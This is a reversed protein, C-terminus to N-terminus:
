FDGLDVEISEIITAEFTKGGNLQKPPSPLAAVPADKKPLAVPNPTSPRSTPTATEFLRPVTRLRASPDFVKPTSTGSGGGNQQARRERRKREAEAMEARRVSEMNAKRNRENVRALRDEGGDRDRGGADAGAGAAAEALQADISAVEDLDQRRLALTRQATLRSREAVSLTAPVSSSNQTLAAMQRKRAIIASIDDETLVKTMLKQIEAYREEVEKKTPLPIKEITYTDLLRRFEDATFAENSARDMQWVREAKGHKLEFCEQVTKEPTVKYPKPAADTALSIVLVALLSKIQCIRYVRQSGQEGLLYRVWGGVLIKEFFPSASHKALASRTFTIKQLTEPTLPEEPEPASDGKPKKGLGLREDEQDLRSIQGDESDSDSMEMDTPSASRENTHKPSGGRTRKKEDKAKRKARLANLSRDKTRDKGTSRSPRKTESEAAALTALQQARLKDIHKRDRIREVQDMRTALIEEREIETKSLLDERDAEDVYKGELPFLEPEEDEEHGEESEPDDDSDAVKRKKSSKAKASSSDRARKRSQKEKDPTGDVLELLEDDLESSM